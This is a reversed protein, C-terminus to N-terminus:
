RLREYRLVSSAGDDTRVFGLKTLLGQSAALEPLTEAVVRDVRGDAFAWEILASVAEFAFGRGHFAPVVSYGVEVAGDKPRGKFGGNGIVIDGDHTREIFYWVLWGANEPAAEIQELFWRASDADNFPPPWDAPIRAHLLAGLRQRDGIEAVAIDRTAAVLRLRSTDIQM